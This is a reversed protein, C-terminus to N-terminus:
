VQSDIANWSQLFKKFMKKKQAKEDSPANAWQDIDEAMWKELMKVDQKTLSGKKNKLSRKKLQQPNYVGVVNLDSKTM